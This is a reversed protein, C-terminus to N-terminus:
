CGDPQSTTTTICVTYPSHTATYAHGITVGLVGVALCMAVIACAAAAINKHKEYTALLSFGIVFVVCAVAFALWWAFTGLM